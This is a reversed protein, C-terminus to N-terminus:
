SKGEEENTKKENLLKKLHKIQQNKKGLLRMLMNIKVGKDKIGNIRKLSLKQDM